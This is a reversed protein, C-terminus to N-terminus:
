GVLKLPRNIELPQRVLYTRAQLHIMAGPKSSKVAEELNEYSSEGEVHVPAIESQAHKPSSVSKPEFTETVERVVSEESREGSALALERAWQRAGKSFHSAPDPHLAALIDSKEREGLGELLPTGKQQRVIIESLDSGFPDRGTRLKLYTAALSYVDVTPNLRKAYAEPPLYGRTGAGTHLATSAGVFKALGLDGVKVRGHFLLLNSPKIDRHLVGRDNLFQIGEAADSIYPYLERLPIGARGQAQCQRLRDELTGEAAYEWRTVLYGGVIWYDVLTTVHPDGSLARILKLSELEKQVLAKQEDIPDLSVKIACPVGERSHAEWVESFGGRGIRRVLRLGHQSELTAKVVEDM